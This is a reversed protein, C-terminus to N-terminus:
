KKVIIKLIIDELKWDFPCNEKKFSSFSSCSRESKRHTSLLGDIGMFLLLDHTYVM